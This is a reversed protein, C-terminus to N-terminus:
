WLQVLEKLRLTTVRVLQSHKFQKSRLCLIENLPQQLGCFRHAQDSVCIEPAVIQKELALEVIAVVVVARNEVPLHDRVAAWGVVDRQKDRGRQRRADSALVRSLQKIEIVIQQLTIAM